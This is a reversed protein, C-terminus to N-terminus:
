SLIPDSVRAPWQYAKKKVGTWVDFSPTGARKNDTDEDKSYFICYTMQKWEVFGPLQGDCITRYFRNRWTGTNLYIIDREGQEAVAEQLPLHTHGYLIFSINADRKWVEERCAAQVLPDKAPDSSGESAKMFLPLLEEADMHKMLEGPIWNLWKNSVARLVDDWKTDPSRWQQVVGIKLMETITKRLADSVLKRVDDKDVDKIRYYIWDLIQGLPRVNDINNLNEVLDPPIDSYKKPDQKLLDKVKWPIKVAFETTIVDGIPCKLHGQRTLDHGGGYNWVDFQHGHRAYVGHEEDEYDYPFWWDGKPDGEIFSEDLGLISKIEDRLSPYLNCLRDHNGPIYLVKVPIGASINKEVNRFMEFIEWNKALITDRNLNSRDALRGLIQFCRAKVKSNEQPETIDRLGNEGWPRDIPAEQFWQESRILDVVDGLLLIKIEKAKKEKALSTIDSFFVSRFAEAPVNHEGATGDAFHLDSIIVLM